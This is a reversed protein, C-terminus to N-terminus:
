AANTAESLERMGRGAQEAVEGAIMAEQAERMRAVLEEIEGEDRMWDAPARIGELADKLAAGVDVQALAEPDREVALALLESTEIFTQAKEREIADHLPSTFEFRVDRGQLEAPIDQTAGLFGARMLREFTAECVGANYQTEMPEFLPIAGRIYEQIRERVETATMDGEAPPLTLKNLYFAAALMSRQDAAAEYGFPLGSKDQSIPRLVDGKREDYEVDAWTIGGPFWQVDERVADQTAILPPRVAMEGAELLTLTMAQILRADPLGAVTAPSYAYQSGSVTQWRPLTFGPMWVDAEGMMHQNDVDIYTVKWPQLATDTGPYITQKTIVRRCTVKQMADKDTKRQLNSHLGNPFLRKLEEIRPKWRIHLETLQGDYGEAWACDRLHWTRYLLHPQDTDWNIEDSIVCQGFAAFDADGETTARVFQSNKAYMLRRQRKTAWELWQKGALSIEDDDEVTMRFWETDRKRLMSAFSNSLERHVLLPYSSNLHEAFEEGIIRHITFDARQPYFQEAIDQWLTMLTTRDGFLKDGREILNKVAESM